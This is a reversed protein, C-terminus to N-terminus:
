CTPAWAQGANGRSWINSGTDPMAVPAVASPDAWVDPGDVVVTGRDPRAPRHHGQADHVTAGFQTRLNRIFVAPPGTTTRRRRRRRETM